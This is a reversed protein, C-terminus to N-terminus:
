CNHNTWIAEEYIMLALRMLGPWWFVLLKLFAVLFHPLNTMKLGNELRNQTKTMYLIM